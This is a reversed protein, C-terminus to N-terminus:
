HARASRASNALQQRARQTARDVLFANEFARMRGAACLRGLTRATMSITERNKAGHSFLFLSRAPSMYTLRVKQWESKLNLQYSFGLQLHDRLQPGSALEPSDPLEIPEPAPTAEVPKLAAADITPLSAADGAVALAAARQLPRVPAAISAPAPVAAAVAHSWDVEHESVLGIALEEELSFRQELVPLTAGEPAAEAAEDASPVPTRFAAELSRLMMNHDLESRPAGKLSGAHHTVLQGFFEDQAAQPWDVFKMTQTLEAMLAPLGAVFDKREAPSRKPQVSRVLETATKRLRLPYAADGGERRTAMVIAQAWAGILFDLLFAPLALPELAGRLRESFRQQVRWELEKGRLTAAAASARIEAHTQDAVFRELELLKAEYLDLEDFDGDVIEDVLARTRDLLQKAPGGDFSDFACALSGVRNIFRRVPHRRSSFFSSDALAARLVPLQLRALQRAMEPPVRADSLIQDFLSSVVEIVLHDLQGRTAQLLEARHARILNRAMLGSLGNSPPQEYAVGLPIGPRTPTFDDDAEPQLEGNDSGYGTDRPLADFEGMYTGGGNLRRLLKMLEADAAAAASPRTGGPPGITGPLGGRILRDLLAASSEVDTERPLPDIDNFRGLISAEWSRLPPQESPVRGIWSAEWQKRLEDFSSGAAKQPRASFEDAARMALDTKKIGRKQLDAVIERFCAPMANAMAQGLERAFIKQTDAEDTVKEISKHLARGLVAGRLPNRRPDAWGHGLVSSMYADLERLEAESTHAILQGIREFSIKEEIQGEDVLGITQWDTTSAQGRNDAQSAVDDDIRERLAGAFSTLLLERNELVHIQAFALQGRERYTGASKMLVLLNNAVEVVAADLTARIRDQASALVAHVIPDSPNM